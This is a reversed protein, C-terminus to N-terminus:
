AVRRRAEEIRAPRRAGIVAIMHRYVLEQGYWMTVGLIAAVLASLVVGTALAGGALVPGVALRLGWNILALTLAVLNGGAHIWSERHERVRGLTSFDISGVAGAVLGTVVGAGLLWLSARAWFLDGTGWYALDTLFATVLFAIPFPILMPHVPHGQVSANSPVGEPVPQVEAM